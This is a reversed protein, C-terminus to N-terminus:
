MLNDQMNKINQLKNNLFVYETETIWNANLDLNLIDPLAKFECILNNYSKAIDLIEQLSLPKGIKKQINKLENELVAIKALRDNYRGRSM